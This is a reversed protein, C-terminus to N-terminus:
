DIYISIIYIIQYDYIIVAALSPLLVCEISFKCPFKKKMIKRKGVIKM